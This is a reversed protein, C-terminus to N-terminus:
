SSGFFLWVAWAGVATYVRGLDEHIGGRKKKEEGAENKAENVGQQRSWWERLKVVTSEQSREVSRDKKELVEIKSNQEAVRRQLYKVEALIQEIQFELADRMEEAEKKHTEEENKAVQYQALVVAGFVTFVFTESLVEAARRVAQQEDLVFKIEGVDPRMNQSIYSLRTTVQNIGRGLRVCAQRLGPHTQAQEKIQNAIPKTVVKLLLTGLKLLPFAASMLRDTCCYQLARSADVYGARKKDVGFPSKL